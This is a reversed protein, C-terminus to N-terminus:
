EKVEEEPAADDRDNRSVLTVYLLTFALLVFFMVLSIAPVLERASRNPNMTMNTIPPTKIIRPSFARVMKTSGKSNAKANAIYLASPIANVPSPGIDDSDVINM